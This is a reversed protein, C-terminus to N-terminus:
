NHVPFYRPIFVQIYFCDFHVEIQVANRSKYIFFTALQKKATDIIRGHERLPM